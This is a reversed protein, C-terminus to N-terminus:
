EVTDNNNGSVEEANGSGYSMDYADEAAGMTDDNTGSLGPIKLAAGLDTLASAAFGSAFNLLGENKKGTMGLLAPGAAGVALRIGANVMPKAIAPVTNMWNKAFRSAVAGGAVQGAVVINATAKKFDFKMTLIKSFFIACSFGVLTLM